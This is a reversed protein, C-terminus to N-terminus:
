FVESFITYCKLSSVCKRVNRAKFPSSLDRVNKITITTGHLRKTASLSPLASRKELLMLTMLATGPNRNVTARLRIPWQSCSCSLFFCGPYVSSKFLTVFEYNTLLASSYM